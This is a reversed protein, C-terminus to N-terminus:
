LWQLGISPVFSLPGLEIFLYGEACPKIERAQLDCFERRRQSALNERIAIGSKIEPGSSPM